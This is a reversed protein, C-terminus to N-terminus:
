TTETALRHWDGLDLEQARKGPDIGSDVLLREAATLSIGLGASLSSRLKKRRASFGAKVVRFFQEGVSFLPEQRRILVLIQSDVKPPPVFLEAPVIQGLEVSYYVQVFVALQSLSGATAAVREAVEKQVLLVACTPKNSIDVLKRLLNATLYYPINAVIKYEAPMLNLDYTRIDGFELGVQGGLKHRYKHKLDRLRAQDFELAKVKAGTAVLEDTLTGTGPGIELVTDASVVKAAEVMAALSGPDTLWHQGLSKRALPLKSSM